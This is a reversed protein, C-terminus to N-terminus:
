EQDPHFLVYFSKLQDCTVFVGNDLEVKEVGDFVAPCQFIIGEDTVPKEHGSPENTMDSDHGEEVDGTSAPADSDGRKALADLSTPMAEGAFARKRSAAPSMKFASPQNYLWYREKKYDNAHKQLYTAYKLDPDGYVAAVAAVHPFINTIPESGPNVNM